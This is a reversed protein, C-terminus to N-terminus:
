MKRANNVYNMIPIPFVRGRLPAGIKSPMLGAAAWFALPVASTKHGRKAAMALGEAQLNRKVAMALGEGQHTSGETASKGEEMTKKGKGHEAGWLFQHKMTESEVSDQPLLNSNQTSSGTPTPKVRGGNKATLVKRDKIKAPTDPPIRDGKCVTGFQLVPTQSSLEEVCNLPIPQRKSSVEADATSPTVQVKVVEMPAEERQIPEDSNTCHQVSRQDEMAQLGHESGPPEQAVIPEQVVIKSPQVGRSDGLNTDHRTPPQPRVEQNRVRPDRTERNISVGLESPNKRRGSSRGSDKEDTKFGKEGRRGYRSTSRGRWDGAGFRQQKERQRHQEPKKPVRPRSKSRSGRREGPCHAATHWFQRCRGCQNPHGTVLIKHERFSGEASRLRIREPIKTYDPVLVKVRLGATKGVYTDSEEVFLVKGLKGAIIKLCTENRM